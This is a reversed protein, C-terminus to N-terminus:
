TPTDDSSSAAARKDYGQQVKRPLMTASSRAVPRMKHFVYM